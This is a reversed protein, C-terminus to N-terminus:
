RRTSACFSTSTSRRRGPLTFTMLGADSREPPHGPDRPDPSRCRTSHTVPIRPIRVRSWFKGIADYLAERTATGALYREQLDIFDYIQSEFAVHTFGCDQILRQIVEAKVQFTRGGGHNGTEGLFVIEADCVDAVVDALVASGAAAISQQGAAGCGLLAGGVLGLTLSRVM